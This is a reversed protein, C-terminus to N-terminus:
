SFGYENAKAIVYDRFAKRQKNSKRIQYTEFIERTTETM